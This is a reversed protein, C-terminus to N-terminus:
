LQVDMEYLFVPKEFAPARREPYFWTRQDSGDKGFCRLFLSPVEARQLITRIVSSDQPNRYAFCINPLLHIM